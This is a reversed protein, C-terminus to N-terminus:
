PITAVTLVLDRLSYWKVSSRFSKSPNRFHLTPPLYWFKVTAKNMISLVFIFGFAWQYSLCVSTNGYSPIASLLLFSHLQPAWENLVCKNTVEVFLLFLSIFCLLPHSARPTCNLVPCISLLYRQTFVRLLHLLLWSTAQHFSFGPLLFLWHLSGSTPADRTHKLFFLSALLLYTLPFQLSCLESISLPKGSASFILLPCPSHHSKLPWSHLLFSLGSSPTGAVRDRCM